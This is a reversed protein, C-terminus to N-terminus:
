TSSPKAQEENEQQKGATVELTVQCSVTLSYTRQVVLKCFPFYFHFIYRDMM